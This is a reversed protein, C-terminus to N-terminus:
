ELITVSIYVFIDLRPYMNQCYKLFFLLRALYKCFIPIWFYRRENVDSPNQWVIKDFKTGRNQWIKDCSKQFGGKQLNQCFRWCGTSAFSKWILISIKYKCYINTYLPAFTTISTQNLSIISKPHWLTSSSFFYFCFTLSEVGIAGLHM